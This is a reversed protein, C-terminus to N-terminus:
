TEKMVHRFVLPTFLSLLLVCLTIWWGLSKFIDEPLIFSYGLYSLFLVGQLVKLTKADAENKEAVLREDTEAVILQPNKKIKILKLSSALAASFPILSLGLLAKNNTFYTETIEFTFWTVFLAIGALLSVSIVLKTEKVVKKAIM